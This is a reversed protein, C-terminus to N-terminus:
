KIEEKKYYNILEEITIFEKRSGDKLYFHYCFKPVDDFRITRDFKDRYVNPMIELWNQKMAFNKLDNQMLKKKENKCINELDEIKEYYKDLAEDNIKQEKVWKETDKELNKLTENTEELLKFNIKERQEKPLKKLEEIRQKRKEYGTESSNEKGEYDIIGSLQEAVEYFNNAKTKKM